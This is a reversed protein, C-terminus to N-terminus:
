RYQEYEEEEEAEQQISYLLDSLNEKYNQVQDDILGAEMDAKEAESDPVSDSFTDWVNYGSITCIYFLERPEGDKPILYSNDGHVQELIQLEGDEWVYVAYQVRGFSEMTERYLAPLKETIVAAYKKLAESRKM